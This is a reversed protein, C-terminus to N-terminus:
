SRAAKRVHWMWTLGHLVGAMEAVTRPDKGNTFADDILEAMYSSAMDLVRREDVEAGDIDDTYVFEIGESGCKRCHPALRRTTEPKKSSTERTAM